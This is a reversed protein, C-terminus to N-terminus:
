KHGPEHRAAPFAEAVPEPPREEQDAGHRSEAAARLGSNLEQDYILIVHLGEDSLDEQWAQM